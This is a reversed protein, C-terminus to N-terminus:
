VFRAVSSTRSLEHRISDMEQVVNYVHEPSFEQSSRKHYVLVTNHNQWEPNFIVDLSGERIRWKAFWQNRGDISLPLGEVFEAFTDLSNGKYDAAFLLKAVKRRQYDSWSEDKSKGSVNVPLLPFSGNHNPVICFHNQWDQYKAKEVIKPTDQRFKSGATEFIEVEYCDLFQPSEDQLHVRISAKIGYRASQGIVSSRRSALDSFHKAPIEIGAISSLKERALPTRRFDYVFGIAYPANPLQSVLLVDELNINDKMILTLTNPPGSYRELGILMDIQMDRLHLKANVIHTYPSCRLEENYIMNRIMNRDLYIRVRPVRIHVLSGQNYVMFRSSHLGLRDMDNLLLATKELLSEKTISQFDPIFERAEFAERKLFASGGRLIDIVEEQTPDIAISGEEIGSEKKVFGKGEFSGDGILMPDVVERM